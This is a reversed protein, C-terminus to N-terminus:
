SSPASHAATAGANQVFEVSQLKYKFDLNEKGTAAFCVQSPMSM